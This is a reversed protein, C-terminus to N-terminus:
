VAVTDESFLLRSALRVFAEVIAHFWASEPQRRDYKLGWARYVGTRM